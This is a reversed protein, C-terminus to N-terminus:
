SKKSKSKKTVPLNDSQWSLIGGKLNYVTEFGEKILQKCAVSSQAGSRCSIIVPKNKYKELSGLQKALASSPVNIANIIHGSAYDAAPRVDIVVADDHNIMETAQLGTINHKNDAMLNQLLLVSALTWAIVLILNNSVFELLQDIM